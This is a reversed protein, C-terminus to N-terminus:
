CSSCKSSEEEFSLSRESGPSGKCVDQWSVRVQAAPGSAGANSSSSTAPICTAPNTQVAGTEDLQNPDVYWFGSAERTGSERHRGPYVVRGDKLFAPLFSTSPFSQDSLIRFQRKDRDYITPVMFLYRSGIQIAALGSFVVKGKKGKEPFSFSVKSTSIKLDDALECSGRDGLKLIVTRGGIQGALETGDKNLIPQYLNGIMAGQFSSVAHRFQERLEEKRTFHREKEEGSSKLFKEEVLKLEASIANMRQNLLAVNQEFMAPKHLGLLENECLKFVRAKNVTVGAGSAKTLEYDRVKASDYLSTRIKRKEETSDPLEASSHYYENHEKDEFVSRAAVGQDLLSQFDYYKLAGDDYPSSIWRWGGDQAEVPYSEDRLPTTIKRVIRRGESDRQSLDFIVGGGRSALIFDGSPHYRFYRYDASEPVAVFERAPICNVQVSWGVAMTLMLEIM